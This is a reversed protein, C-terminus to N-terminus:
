PFRSHNTRAPVTQFDPKRRATPDGGIRAVIFFFALAIVGRVLVRVGVTFLAPHLGVYSKVPRTVELVAYGAGGINGRKAIAFSLSNERVGFTTFVTSSEWESLLATGPLLFSGVLVAGLLAYPTWRGGHM